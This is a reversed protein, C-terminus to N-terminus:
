HGIVAWSLKRCLTKAHFMGVADRFPQQAPWPQRPTLPTVAVRNDVHMAHRNNADASWFREHRAAAGKSTISVPSHSLASAFKVHSSRLLFSHSTAPRELVFYTM